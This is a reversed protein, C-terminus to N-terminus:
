SEFEHYDASGIYKRPGISGSKNDKYIISRYYDDWDLYSKVDSPINVVSGARAASKLKGLLPIAGLISVAKDYTNGNDFAEKV